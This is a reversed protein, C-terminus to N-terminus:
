SVLGRPGVRSRLALCDTIGAIRGNEILILEDALHLLQTSKSIVILTTGVSKLHRIVGLVDHEGKEDLGIMPEDLILLRPENYVASALAIRKLQSSSVCPADAVLLTQYGESLERIVNDAGTLQAAKFLAANNPESGRCIYQSMSMPKLLTAQPLYSLESGLQASSYNHLAMGDLMVSGRTPKEIGAIVRALASKGAGESGVIVHLRGPRIELDVRDLVAKERGVIFLSVAALTINGSIPPMVIKEPFALAHSQSAALRRWSGLATQFTTISYNLRELPAIAKTFLMSSAVIAGANLEQFVVLTAALALIGIQMSSRVARMTADTWAVRGQHKLHALSYNARSQILSAVSGPLLGFARITTPQDVITTFSLAVQKAKAQSTRESSKLLTRNATSVGVLLLFCTFVYLGVLSHIFLLVLFYLITWPLDLLILFSPSSVFTKVNDVDILSAGERRELLSAKTVEDEFISTITYSCRTLLNGRSADLFLSSVTVFALLLTIAALTPLHGSPIVRDFIQMTYLPLGLQIASLMFSFLTAIAVNVRLCSRAQALTEAKSLM